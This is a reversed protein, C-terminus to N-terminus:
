QSNPTQIAIIVLVATKLFTFQHPDSYIQLTGYVCECAVARVACIRKFPCTCWQLCLSLHFPPFHLFVQSTDLCSNETAAHQEQWVGSHKGREGACRSHFTVPLSCGLLRSPCSEPVDESPTVCCGNELDSLHLVLLPSNSEFHWKCACMNTSGQVFVRVILCDACIEASRGHDAFIRCMTQGTCTPKIFIRAFKVISEAALLFIGSKAGSIDCKIWKVSNPLPFGATSVTSTQLPFQLFTQLNRKPRSIFLSKAVKM